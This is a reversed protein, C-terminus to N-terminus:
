DHGMDRFGRHLEFERSTVWTEIRGTRTSIRDLLRVLAALAPDDPIALHDPRFTGVRGSSRRARIVRRLLFAFVVLAVLAVVPWLDPEGSRSAHWVHTTTRDSAADASRGVHGVSITGSGTQSQDLNGTVEAVRIDGAGQTEIDGSDVVARIAIDGAGMTVARLRGIHGAGISADAGGLVRLDLSPTEIASVSLDGGGTLSILAVGGIGDISVDGGGGQDLTLPGDVRGLSLDGGGSKHLVVPFAFPLRVILSRDDGCETSVEVANNPSTAVSRAQGQVEVAGVLDSSTVLSVRTDQPCAVNLVLGNGTLPPVSASATGGFGAAAAALLIAGRHRARASM